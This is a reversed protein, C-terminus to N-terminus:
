RALRKAVLEIAKADVLAEFAPHRAAAGLEPMSGMRAALARRMGDISATDPRENAWGAVGDIRASLLTAERPDLALDAAMGAAIERAPRDHALVELAAADFQWFWVEAEAHEARHRKRAHRAFAAGDLETGIAPPRVWTGPSRGADLVRGWGDTVAWVHDPPLLLAVARAAPMAATGARDAVHGVLASPSDLGGFSAIWAGPMLLERAFASAEGEALDHPTVPLEHPQDAVDCPAGLPHWGLLVHGLGHAVAFRRREPVDALTSHLVIRPREGARAGHVVAVDARVPLEDESVVAFDAAIREVDFPPVLSRAEALSRAVRRAVRYAVDPM